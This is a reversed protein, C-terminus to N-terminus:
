GTTYGQQSLYADIDDKYSYNGGILNVAETYEVTMDSDNCKYHLEGNYESRAKEYVKEDEYKFTRTYIGDMLLKRSSNTTAYHLEYKETTSYGTQFNFSTDKKYIYVNGSVEIVIRTKSATKNGYADTAVVIVDYAGNTTYKKTTDKDEFSYNCGTLDYCEEVFQEPSYTSGEVIKLQRTKLKPATTDVINIKGTKTIGQYKVTFDYTGVEEINVNSTDIQYALEDVDNGVGPKVYYKGRIPLSDGLEVTVTLPTFDKETPHNRYWYYFGGLLVIVLLSLLATKNELKQKSIKAKDRTKKKKRSAKIDKDKKRKEIDIQEPLSVSEKAQADGNEDISGIAIAGDGKLENEKSNLALAKDNGEQITSKPIIASLDRKKETKTDEDIMTPTITAVEEVPAEIKSGDSAKDIKKDQEQNSSSNEIKDKEEM